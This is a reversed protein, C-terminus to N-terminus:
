EYLSERDRFRFLQVPLALGFTLVTILVHIVPRESYRDAIFYFGYYLLVFPAFIVFPVMGTLLIGLGLVVIFIITFYGQIPELVDDETLIPIMFVNVVPIWALWAKGVEESQALHYLGMALLVHFTLIIGLFVVLGFVAFFGMIGNLLETSDCACATATLFNLM